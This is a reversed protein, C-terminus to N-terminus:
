GADFVDVQRYRRSLYTRVADILPQNAVPRIPNAGNMPGDFAGYITVRHIEDVYSRAWCHAGFAAFHYRFYNYHESLQGGVFIEECRHEILTPTIPDQDRLEFDEVEPM